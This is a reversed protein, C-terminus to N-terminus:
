ISPSFKQNTPYFHRDKSESTSFENMCHRDLEEEFPLLTGLWEMVPSFVSTFAMDIFVL